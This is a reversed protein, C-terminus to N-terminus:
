TKKSFKEVFLNIAIKRLYNFLEKENVFELKGLKKNNKIRTLFLIYVEIIIEDAEFGDMQKSLLYKRLINGYQMNLIRWAQEDEKLLAQWFSNFDKFPAHDILQGM